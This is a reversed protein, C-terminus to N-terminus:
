SKRGVDVFKNSTCIGYQLVESYQSLYYYIFLASGSWDSWPRCQKGILRCRKSSNSSHLFGFVGINLVIIVVIIKLTKINLIKVVSIMSQQAYSEHTFLLTLCHHNFAGALMIETMSHCQKWFKPVNVEGSIFSGWIRSYSYDARGCLYWVAWRKKM